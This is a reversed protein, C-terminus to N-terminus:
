KLRYYGVISLGVLLILLAPIIIVNADFPMECPECLGGCDVGTEGGNMIGDFCTPEPANNCLLSQTNCGYPCSVILDWSTGDSSCVELNDGNCRKHDKVCVMVKVNGSRDIVMNEDVVRHLWLTQWQTTATDWEIYKIKEGYLLSFSVTSGAANRADIAREGYQGNPETVLTAEVNSYPSVDFVVTKFNMIELLFAPVPLYGTTAGAIYIGIVAIVAIAIRNDM